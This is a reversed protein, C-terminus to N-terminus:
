WFLLLLYISDNQSQIVNWISRFIIVLWGPLPLLNSRFSLFLNLFWWLFLSKCRNLLFYLFHDRRSDRHRGLDSTSGSPFSRMLCKRRDFWCRWLFYHIHNLNYFFYLYFLFIFIIRWQGPLFFFWLIQNM